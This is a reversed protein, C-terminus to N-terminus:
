PTEEPANAPGATRARALLELLDDCWRTVPADGLRGAVGRLRRAASIAGIDLALTHLYADAASQDDGLAEHCRGIAHWALVTYPPGLQAARRYCAMAGAVEQRALYVDGREMHVKPDLPDVAALDDAFALARDLDGAALAVKCRTQLLPHLNQRRLVAATPTDHPLDLAAAHAHDLEIEVRDLDRELFPEYCVARWYTSLYLRDIWDEVPRLGRVLSEAVARWRRVAPLDHRASRAHHVVLTLAAALRTRSPQTVDHAVAALVGTLDDLTATTGVVRHRAERHRIAALVSERDGDRLRPPDDGVLDVTVRYLGLAQLLDLLRAPVHRGPVLAADGVAQSLVDWRPTRLRPDLDGPTSVDYWPLGLEGTLQRRFRASQHAQSPLVPVRDDVLADYRPAVGLAHVPGDDVISLDLYPQLLRGAFPLPARLAPRDAADTEWDAAVRFCKIRM